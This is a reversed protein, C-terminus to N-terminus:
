NSDIQAVPIGTDVNGGNAAGQRETGVEKQSM